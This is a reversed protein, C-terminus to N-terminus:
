WRGSKVDEVLDVMEEASRVIRYIGGRKEVAAQWDRQAPSQRGADTKFEAQVAVAVTRGVMEPTITVAVMLGADAMGPLGIRVPQYPPEYRRFMGVQQRWVLVDDRAGVALLAPNQTHTTERNKM